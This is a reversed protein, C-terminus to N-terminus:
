ATVEARELELTVRTGFGPRSDVALTAGLTEARERMGIIGFSDDRRRPGDPDFGCGDDHVLLRAKPDRAQWQVTVNRAGSHKEVNTLAEQLVRLVEQETRAPLRQTGDLRLSVDIGTRRNFRETHERILVDLTREVSVTSRLQVLTERLEGVARRVDDRLRELQEDPGRRKVMRDLEFSIYVLSQALRDHLDRAIRVREEEAGLSRLRRFWRANDIGLALPDAVGVVSRLDAIGFPETGSREVVLLGLVRGRSHLAVYVGTRSTPALGPGDLELDESVVGGAAHVARRVPAPLDAGSLTQPLRLGEALEVHWEEGAEDTTLVAFVEFRTLEGLSRRSAVVAENLDLSAPLAQTLQYLLLLHHNVEALRTLEDSTARQRQHAEVFLGRSYGGVAATATLVLVVAGATDTPDGGHGLLMAPLAVGVLAGGAIMFAALYGRGFGAVLVSVLLLLVFPSHWGGTMGVAALVLALDSVFPLTAAPRDAALRVPRASRWISDLVLLAAALPFWRGRVADASAAVLFGLTVGTWRVWSVLRGFVDLM